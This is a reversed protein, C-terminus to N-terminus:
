CTQFDPSTAVLMRLANQRLVRYSRQQWRHEIGDACRNSFALLAARTEPTMDPQGWFAIASTVAAEPTEAIDYSADDTEIEQLSRVQAEFRRREEESVAM